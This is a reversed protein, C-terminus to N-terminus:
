LSTCRKLELDNYGKYYSNIQIIFDFCKFNVGAIRFLQIAKKKKKKKKLFFMNFINIDICILIINFIITM